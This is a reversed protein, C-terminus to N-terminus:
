QPDTTGPSPSAMLQLEGDRRFGMAAYVPAGQPTAQLLTFRAGRAAGSAIAAATVARGLGRRQWEPRTGVWFIGGIGDMVLSTAIALVRDELVVGFTLPATVETRGLQNRAALQGLALPTEYAIRTCDAYSEAWRQDLLLLRAGPVAQDVRQGPNPTAALLAGTPASMLQASGFPQYGLSRLEAQLPQPNQDPWILWGCPMRNQRYRADIRALQERTWHQGASVVTNGFPHPFPSEFWGADAETHWYPEGRALEEFSRAMLQRSATFDPGALSTPM